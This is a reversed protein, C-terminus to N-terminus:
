IDACERLADAVADPTVYDWEGTVIRVRPGLPRWRDPSKPGFISVTPVGMMGALHGPGSDNGVFASAGAIVNMLEVLTKPERVQAVQAFSEIQERPWRELEVEGLIVQVSQGTQKIQDALQLFQEPPWCKKGSGAGPHLVVPGDAPRAIGLGRTAVSRLMQTMAAEIVPSSELQQLLYETIHGAFDEPPMTSLTILSAAPALERVNKAWLDDPGSVFSIIQQAGSLLRSAPPPLQPEQSFLHHWGGEVDTSEVRLAKEALAGKQGATVYFIRSQAFVRALGLVLPWTVVFDGLAGQHFILINRRLVM